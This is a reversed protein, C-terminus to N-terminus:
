NAQHHYQWYEQSVGDRVWTEQRKAPMLKNKDICSDRLQIVGDKRGNRSSQTDSEPVFRRSLNEKKLEFFGTAAAFNDQIQKETENSIAVTSNGVHIEDLEPSFLKKPDPTTDFGAESLAWANPADIDYVQKASVHPEEKKELTAKRGCATVSRKMSYKNTKAFEQYVCYAVLVGVLALAPNAAESFM